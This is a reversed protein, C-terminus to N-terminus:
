ALLQYQITYTLALIQIVIGLLFVVIDHVDWLAHRKEAYLRKALINLITPLYFGIIPVVIAGGLNLIIAVNDTLFSPISCVLVLAARFVFLRTRTIEGDSDKILAKIFSFEELLESDAINFLAVFLTLTLFILCGICYLLPNKELTYILLASSVM